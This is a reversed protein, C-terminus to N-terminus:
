SCRIAAAPEPPAEASAPRDPDPRDRDPRDHDTEARGTEDPATEYRDTRDHDMRYTLRQCIQNLVIRVLPRLRPLEAPAITLYAQPVDARSRSPPGFARREEAWGLPSPPM